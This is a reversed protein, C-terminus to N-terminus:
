GNLPGGVSSTSGHGPRARAAGTSAGAQARRQTARGPRLCRRRRRPARASSPGRISAEEARRALSRRTPAAARPEVSRTTGGSSSARTSPRRASRARDTRAPAAVAQDALRRGPPDAGPHHEPHEPEPDDPEGLDREPEGLVPPRPAVVSRVVDPVELPHERVPQAECALEGEDAQRQHDHHAERLHEAPPPPHPRAQTRRGQIDEEGVRGKAPGASRGMRSWDSSVAARSNARSCPASGIGTWTSSTLQSVSEGFANAAPMSEDRLIKM